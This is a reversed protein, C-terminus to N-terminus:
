AVLKLQIFLILQAADDVPDDLVDVVGKGQIDQRPAETRVVQPYRGCIKAAISAHWTIDQVLHVGIGDRFLQPLQKFDPIFLLLGHGDRIRMSSLDPLVKVQKIQRNINGNNMHCVEIRPVAPGDNGLRAHTIRLGLSQDALQDQVVSEAGIIQLFAVPGGLPDECLDFASHHLVDHQQFRLRGSFVSLDKMKLKGHTFKIHHHKIRLCGGAFDILDLVAGLNGGLLRAMQPVFFFASFRCRAETCNRSLIDNIASLRLIDISNMIYIDLFVQAQKSYTARYM